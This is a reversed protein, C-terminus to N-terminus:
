WSSGFARLLVLGIRPTEKTDRTREHNNCVKWGNANRSARFLMKLRLEAPIRLDGGHVV